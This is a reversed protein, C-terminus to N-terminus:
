FRSFMKFIATFFQTNNVLELNKKSVKSAKSTRKKNHWHYVHLDCYFAFNQVLKNKWIELFPFRSVYFFITLIFFLYIISLSIISFNSIREIWLQNTRVNPKRLVAYTGYVIILIKWNQKCVIRIHVYPIPCLFHRNKWYLITYQTYMTNVNCLNETEIYVNCVYMCLPLVKPKIIFEDLYNPIYFHKSSFLYFFFIFLPLM